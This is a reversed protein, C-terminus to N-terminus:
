MYANHILLEITNHQHLLFRYIQDSLTSLDLWLLYTHAFFHVFIKEPHSNQCKSFGEQKIYLYMSATCNICSCINWAFMSISVKKLFTLVHSHSVVMLEQCYFHTKHIINHRSSFYVGEFQYIVVIFYANRCFFCTM